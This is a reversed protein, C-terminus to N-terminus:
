GITTAKSFNNTKEFSIVNKFKDVLVDRKHSIIFVNEDKFNYLIKLFDDTGTDDLSSDFIEDLILLNTNASNKMKAISRWTFLIALDIRTKEGESFNAYSFTDRYRSKITENFEEDLTFNVFFDMSQLYDNILKNMVPLYQRIIKVKIGDDRLLLKVVELYTKTEQLEHKSSNLSKTIGKMLMLSEKDKDGLEQVELEHKDKHLKDLYKGMEEVSSQIKAMAVENRQMLTVTDKIKDLLVQETNELESLKDMAEELENIHGKYHNIKVGKIDDNIVQTCVPCEDNDEFFVKHKDSTLKSNSLSAKTQSIKRLKAEIQLQNSTEDLLEENDSKISKHRDMNDDIDGKINDVEKDINTILQQKNVSATNIYEEKLEIKNNNVDLKYELTKLEEFLSKMKSKLILNMLSFVRIDLIDEVIERRTVKPLQMFPIFTSAGLIVVQTFSKFNMGLVQQELYKQYDRVSADQNIMVGDQWIEFINPKMGRIITFERKAITFEIKVLTGGNNVSNILSTKSVNRFAKGFLVFTLADLITSKGHGNKGIILTSAHDNLNIITPTNGTSLLNRYEIKKFIIM